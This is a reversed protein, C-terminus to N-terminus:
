LRSCFNFPDLALSRPNISTQTFDIDRNSIQGGFRRETQLIKFNVL